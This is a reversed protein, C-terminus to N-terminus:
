REGERGALLSCVFAPIAGVLGFLLFIIGQVYGMVIATMFPLFSAAFGFLCTWLPRFKVHRRALAGDLLGTLGAPIAGVIYVAPLAVIIHWDLNADDGLALNMVPLMLWFATVFGLLPGLSVFILIRRM